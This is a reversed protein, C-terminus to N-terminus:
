GNYPNGLLERKKNPNQGGGFSFQGCFCWGLGLRQLSKAPGHLQMCGAVFEDLDERKKQPISLSFFFM